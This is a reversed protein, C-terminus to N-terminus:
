NDQNEAEEEGEEIYEIPDIMPLKIWKKEESSVSFFRLFGGSAKAVHEAFSLFSKYLAAAYKPNLKALIPNLEALSDNIRLLNTQVDNSMEGIMQTLSDTFGQGVVTYYETLIEPGSYSRIETLKTAWGTEETDIDGDAAAILITIQAVADILQQQEVENLHALEPIM